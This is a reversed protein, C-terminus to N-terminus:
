VFATPLPLNEPRNVEIIYVEGATPVIGGGTTNAFTLALTNAASVRSNVIGIGAQNTPKTVQVLDGLQLGQVTLTQEATTNAGVSVPSFPVGLIVSYLINGRPITSAPM